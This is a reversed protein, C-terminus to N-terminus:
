THKYTETFLHTTMRLTAKTSGMSVDLIACVSGQLRSFLLFLSGLTGTGHWAAELPAANTQDHYFFFSIVEMM